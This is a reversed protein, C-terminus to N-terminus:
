RATAWVRGQYIREGRPRQTAVARYVITYNNTNSSMAVKVGYRIDYIVFELYNSYIRKHCIVNKDFNLAFAYGSQLSIRRRDDSVINNV